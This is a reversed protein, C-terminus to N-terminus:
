GTVLQMQQHILKLGEEATMAPVVTFDFYRDWAQLAEFMPAASEAETIIIVSPNDVPTWYEALVTVGEPYLYEVRRATREDATFGPKAKAITVFLM